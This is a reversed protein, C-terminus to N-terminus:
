RLLAEPIQERDRALAAPQLESLALDFKREEREGARALASLALFGAATLVLWTGLIGIAIM